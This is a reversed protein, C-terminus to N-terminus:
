EKTKKNMKKKVDEIIDGTLIVSNMYNSFDYVTKGILIIGFLLLILEISFLTMFNSIGFDSIGIYLSSFVGLFLILFAVITLSV